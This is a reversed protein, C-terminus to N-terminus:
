RRVHVSVRENRVRQYGQKRHWHILRTQDWLLEFGAAHFIKDIREIVRMNKFSEAVPSGLVTALFGGSRLLNAASRAFQGISAFYNEAAEGPRFRQRRAGIEKKFDSQLATPAIWHYSLRQGLTYDAMCLYPPSTIIGDISGPQVGYDEPSADCANLQLVRARALEKEPDKGTRELFGYSRALIQLNRGIRALFLEIANVYPPQKLGTPLPTNDAFFGHEKGRRGTTAPITASFCVTLFQRIRTDVVSQIFHWIRCLETLTRPHYWKEREEFEPPDAPRTAKLDDASIDRIRGQQQASLATLRVRAVLTAITNSDASIVRCEYKIAESATQGTGGFPDLILGARLGLANILSAPIAHVFTSPYPHLNENRSLRFGWDGGSKLNEVVNERRHQTLSRWPRTSIWSPVEARIVEAIAKRLRAGSLYPSIRSRLWDPLHRHQIEGGLKFAALSGLTSPAFM